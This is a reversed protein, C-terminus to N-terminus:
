WGADDFTQEYTVRGTRTHRGPYGECHIEDSRDSNYGFHEIGLQRKDIEISASLRSIFYKWLPTDRSDGKELDELLETAALCSAEITESHMMGGYPYTITIDVLAQPLIIKKYSIVISEEPTPYLMIEFRQGTTTVTQEKPRVAALHPHHPHLSGHLIHRLRLSRIEGEGVLDIEPYHHHTEATYTLKGEIGGFDDPLDYNGDHYLVFTAATEADATWVTTLEINTDDTRSAVHYRVNNIVLRGNTAVWSPWVGTTLTVTADGVVTAITGISYPAITTLTCVPKLFTWQHPRENPDFQPPFYFQRLGKKLIRNITALETASWNAATDGLGMQHAIAIRLETLSLSLTSESM